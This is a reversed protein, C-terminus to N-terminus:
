PTPSVVPAWGRINPLVMRHVAKRPDLVIAVAPRRCSAEIAQRRPIPLAAVPIGVVEVVEEGKGDREDLPTHLIGYDRRRLGRGVVQETLWPSDFARLGLIHTVSQVDWGEALMQVSILCRVREGPAGPRGVTSVMERIIAERGGAAAFTASDVLLTVQDHPDGIAPNALLPFEATLHDFLWRAHRTNQVVVLLVPAPLGAGDDSASGERWAQWDRAWSEVLKAIPERCAGIFTPADKAQRVLSWLDLDGLPLRVAKILASESADRVSFSSILWEFPTGPPRPSAAGYWPTASVDVVLQLDAVAAIRALIDSWRQMALSGGKGSRRDGYAHHGEDNLVVLDKWTGLFRRLGADKVMRKRLAEALAAPVFRGRQAAPDAIWDDRRSELPIAQWNCVRINPRFRDRWRPPVMEYADYLNGADAPNLGDGRSRGWVRDRVTLNPVLVLFNGSLPSGAVIARHLTAWVVVLALVVTKGTGTALQLAYRRLGHTQTFSFRRVEFAFILTEVAEQQCFFFRRRSAEREPERDFWHALLERTVSSVGPYGASRWIAVDRRLRDIQALTAAGEGAGG